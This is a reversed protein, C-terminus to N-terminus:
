DVGLLIAEGVQQVLQLLLLPFITALLLEAVLSVVGCVQLDSERSDEVRGALQDELRGRVGLQDGLPPSRV